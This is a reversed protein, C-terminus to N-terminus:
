HGAGGSAQSPRWHGPARSRLTTLSANASSFSVELRQREGGVPRDELEFPADGVLARHADAAVEVTHRVGRAPADQVDVDKGVLDADELVASDIAM